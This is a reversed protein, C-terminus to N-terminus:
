QILPTSDLKNCRFNDKNNSYLEGLLGSRSPLHPLDLIKLRMQLHLYSLGPNSGKTPFIGQLLSFSGVGTNQGPSTWPSYLGHPRLSNSVVSHSESSSSFVPLFMSWCVQSSPRSHSLDEFNIFYYAPDKHELWECVKLVSLHLFIEICCGSISFSWLLPTHTSKIRKGESNFSVNKQKLYM